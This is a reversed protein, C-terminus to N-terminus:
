SPIIEGTGRRSMSSAASLIDADACFIQASGM